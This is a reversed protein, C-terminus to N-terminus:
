ENYLRWYYKAKEIDKAQTSKDGGSLLLVINENDFAFYVRLGSSFFFRLEYVGDGLNKYDGFYDSTEVRLLRSSIRAQITVPLNDFWEKFPCKNNDLKFYIIEM